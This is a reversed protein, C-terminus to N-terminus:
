IVVDFVRATAIDTVLSPMLNLAFPSIPLALMVMRCFLPTSTLARQQM